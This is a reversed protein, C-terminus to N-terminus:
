AISIDKVKLRTLNQRHGIKTRAGKRRKYKYSISKKARVHALIECNVKVGKIYPKGIETKKSDSYLLVRDLKIEKGPAVNLSEAEFTDNKSLRYQKGGTEVIVYM